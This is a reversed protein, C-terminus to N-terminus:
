ILSLRNDEFENSKKPTKKMLQILLNTNLSFNTHLEKRGEVTYYCSNHKIAMPKKTQVYGVPYIPEGTGAIYRLMKSNGYMKQEFETLKRGSKKLRCDGQKSLRNKLITSIQRELFRCDASIHTAIKYYNQIGVVMLNFLKVESLEGASTKPNSIRKAQKKLKSCVQKLNKDSVRSKVVQKKHKSHVKIKFGLFNSYQRKVNVVRTKDQSIELKLREEIWKAVAIKVKEAQTKTRCFIRFDDAYRVLYMEKLKTKRMAIYGHGNNLLGKSNIQTKYNKTVPNDEWQSAVWHDLENLVINALLPSIIGCQPTGKTPKIVEGDPMKVPATLIKRLIFILKEDRIGM